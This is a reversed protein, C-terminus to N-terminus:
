DWNQFLKISQPSPLQQLIRTKMADRLVEPAQEPEVADIIGKRELRVLERDIWDIIERM